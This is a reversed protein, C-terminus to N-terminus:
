GGAKSRRAAAPLKTEGDVVDVGYHREGKTGILGLRERQREGKREGIQGATVQLAEKGDCVTEGGGQVADPCVACRTRNIRAAGHLNGFLDGRLRLEHGSAADRRGGLAGLKEERMLAFVNM